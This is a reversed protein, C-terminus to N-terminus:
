VHARGIESGSDYLAIGAYRQYPSLANLTIIPDTVTLASSTIYINSASFLAAFISGTVTLNGNILANSATFSSLTYNGTSSLTSATGANVSNLANLAWSSTIQSLGNVVYAANIANCAGQPTASQMFSDITQSVIINAM